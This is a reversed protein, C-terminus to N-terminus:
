YDLYDVGCVKGSEDFGNLLVDANGAGFQMSIVISLLIVFALLIISFLIDTCKRPTEEKRRLSIEHDDDILYNRDM